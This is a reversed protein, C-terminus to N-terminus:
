RTGDTTAPRDSLTSARDRSAMIDQSWDSDSNVVTTKMLIVLERKSSTRNVSGLLSQGGMGESGPLRNNQDNYSQSMLGGIVVVQGDMARIVSDTESTSSSALPLILSAALGANITKVKETVVSISPHVHLIVAGQEDIQPTVDLAIGSFFPQLTVSPTNSTTTGTTQTVSINTVYFDDTGVKLVAKQNNLTAIRPSSLVNVKGQGELMQILGSFNTSGLAMAFGGNGLSTLSPGLAGGINGISHSNAAAISGLVGTTPDVGSSFGGSYANNGIAPAAGLAAFGSDVRSLGGWNIGSQFSESLQVEIIKAELIVQRNVALQMAKLYKEVMRQESPLANVVVMGSQPSITASRGEKNGIIAGVTAQLEKWFDANTLTTIKSSDAGAGGGSGGAPHPAAPNAAGGGGGGGGGNTISSSTVRLDSSGSRQGAIYNVRFLRTQLKPPDVFIRSGDQRWDIDYQERLTDLAEFVTVDRLNVTVSSEAMKPSVVMNFRTGSVISMLVADAPANTVVLDFRPELQRVSSKPLSPVLPPLLADKVAQDAREAVQPAPKRAAAAELEARISNAVPTHQAMPSACAVLMGALCLSLTTRASLPFMPHKM